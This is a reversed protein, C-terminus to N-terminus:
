RPSRTTKPSVPSIAEVKPPPPVRVLVYVDDDAISEGGIIRNTSTWKVLDARVQSMVNTSSATVGEPRVGTSKVVWREGDRSWHGEGFGGESDFEWSRVQHAVPDWGIRQTVTMLPKGQRKVTFTRFLFNEDDSWQCHVRVVSDAGEDMWDGIMWELDKLRDHPRALPDLDERASSILWRGDRKVFLVVYLRSDPAGKAPTILTRGEEKAVDPSLFRIADIEFAIKLGRSAAFTDAFSQEILARGQYRDGTPEVVEADETFLAALSKSDGKNYGSVFADDVARIAKEDTSQPHRPPGTSESKAAVQAHAPHTEVWSELAPIGGVVILLILAIAPGMVNRSLM